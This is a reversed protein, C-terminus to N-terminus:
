SYSVRHGDPSRKGLRPFSKGLLIHHVGRDSDATGLQAGGHSRLARMEYGGQLLAVTQNVGAGAGGLASGQSSNGVILGSVDQGGPRRPVVGVVSQVWLIAASPLEM